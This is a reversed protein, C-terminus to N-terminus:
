DQSGSTNPLTRAGVSLGHKHTNSTSLFTGQQTHTHSPLNATAITRSTFVSTFATSGGSSATGSVVRFAKNNHTTIKTWGTPAATQQFLMITGAPAYLQAQIVALQAADAAAWAVTQAADASSVNTDISEIATNLPDALKTKIGSWSVQNSASTSGDDPPPGANYGSVSVPTYAM